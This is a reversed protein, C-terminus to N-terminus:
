TIATIEEENPATPRDVPGLPDDISHYCIGCAYRLAAQASRLSFAHGVPVWMSHLGGKKPEAPPPETPSSHQLFRSFLKKTLWM